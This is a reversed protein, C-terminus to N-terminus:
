WSLQFLKFSRRLVETNPNNEALWNSLWKVADLGQPKM